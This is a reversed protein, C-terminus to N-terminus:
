GSRRARTTTSCTASTARRGAPTASPTGPTACRWSPWSRSTSTSWPPSAACCGRGTARRSRRAVVRVRRAAREIAADAEAPAPRRCPRSSRRPRRTSVDTTGYQGATATVAARLGPVAGLRHGRRRLRGARGARQQAYHAVVEDGFAARAVASREWLALAERLTRRCGPARRRRRLRQRRVGAGADLEHEIGHLAAPSWRPSRWTRTSTAARCGTRWGCRRGTASWGCRAPATTARGLAGRDARVLGAPVAQLLQHEARLAPHVRAHTALLGALVQEGSRAVPRAPGDGAMSRRATARRAALLPHPLLQGRAANPKAMFTLSM